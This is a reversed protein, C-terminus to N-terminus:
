RMMTLTSQRWRRMKENEMRATKRSKLWPPNVSSASWILTVYSNCGSRVEIELIGNMQINKRKMLESTKQPNFDKKKSRKKIHRQLNSRFYKVIGQKSVNRKVTLLPFLFQM